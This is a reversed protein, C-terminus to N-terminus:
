NGVRNATCHFNSPQGGPLQGSGRSTDLELRFSDGQPVFMGQSVVNINPFGAVTGAGQVMFTHSSTITGSQNVWPSPGFLQLSSGNITATLNINPMLDCCTHASNTATCTGTYSGGPGSPPQPPPPQPPPEGGPPPEEGPPPPPPSGGGGPPSVATGGGLPDLAAYPNNDFRPLVRWIKWDEDFDDPPGVRVRTGDTYLGTFPSRCYTQECGPLLETRIALMREWNNPDAGHKELHAYEDVLPQCEFCWTRLDTAAVPGPELQIYLMPVIPQLAGGGVSISVQTEGGGGGAAQTQQEADDEGTRTPSRKLTVDRAEEAASHVGGDGPGRATGDGGVFDRDSLDRATPPRAGQSRADADRMTRQVDDLRDPDAGTLPGLEPYLSGNRPNMPINSLDLVEFGLLRSMLEYDILDDIGQMYMENLWNIRTGTLVKNRFQPSPNDIFQQARRAAEASKAPAMGGPDLIVLRWDDGGLHRFAYNDHKNDFWVWGKENIARMANDFAIRQGATMQGTAPRAVTGDPLRVGGDDLANKFDTPARDTITIKGGAYEPLASSTVPNSTYMTPVEFANGEPDISKLARYGVDDFKDIDDSAKTIKVVLDDRGPISYVDTSAGGGIKKELKLEAGDVQRILYIDDGRRVIAIDSTLVRPDFPTDTRTAALDDPTRAPPADGTAARAATTADEVRDAATAAKEARWINRAKATARATLAAGEIVVAEAGLVTGTVYGFGELAVHTNGRAATQEVKRQALTMLRDALNVLDQAHRAGEPDDPDVITAGKRALEKLTELNERGFVHSEIGLRSLLEAEFTEGATDGVEKVLVLLDVLADKTARGVGKWYSGTRLAFENWTLEDEKLDLLFDHVSERTIGNFLSTHETSRPAAAAVQPMSTATRQVADQDVLNTAADASTGSDRAQRELDRTLGHVTGPGIGDYTNERLADRLRDQNFALTRTQSENLTAKLEATKARDKELQEVVEPLNNERAQTIQLDLTALQQEFAEETVRIQERQTEVETALTKAEDIRRKREAELASSEAKTLRLDFAAEQSAGAKEIDAVRSQASRLEGSLRRIREEAERLETEAAAAEGFGAQGTLRGLTSDSRRAEAQKKDTQAQELQRQVTNVYRNAAALQRATEERAQRREDQISRIEAQEAQRERERRAAHWAEVKLNAESIHADPAPFSEFAAAEAAEPSRRGGTEYFGSTTEAAKAARRVEDPTLQGYAVPACLALAVSLWAAKGAFVRVARALPWSPIVM